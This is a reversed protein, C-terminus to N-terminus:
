FKESKLFIRDCFSDFFLSIRFLHLLKQTDVLQILNSCYGCRTMGVVAFCDDFRSSDNSKNLQKFLTYLRIDGFVLECIKFFTLLKLM